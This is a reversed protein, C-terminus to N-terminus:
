QAEKVEKNIQTTRELSVLFIGIEQQATDDLEAAAIVLEQAYGMYARLDKRNVAVIIDRRIEALLETLEEKEM